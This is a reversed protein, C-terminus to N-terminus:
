LSLSRSLSLSLRLSVLQNIISGDRLASDAVTCASDNWGWVGSGQVLTLPLVVLEVSRAIKIISVDIIAVPYPKTQAVRWQSAKDRGQALLSYPNLPQAASVAPGCTQIIHCSNM